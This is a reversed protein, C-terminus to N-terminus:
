KKEYRRGKTKIDSKFGIDDTIEEYDKIKIRDEDFYFTQGKNFETSVIYESDSIVIEVGSHIRMSAAIKADVHKSVLQNKLENIKIKNIEIKKSIEDAQTLMEDFKKKKDLNLTKTRSAISWIDIVRRLEDLSSHYEDNKKEIKRLADKLRPNSGVELRTITGSNSGFVIANIEELARTTGGVIAARKGKCLIKSLSTINSNLIGDSVVIMQNAEVYCNQIFSAWIGKGARVFSQFEGQIGDGYKNGNIGNGVVINGGATLQSRGVSGKVIIDSKAKVEYGDEINGNIVITGLFDIHSKLDGEITYINEVSVVQNKVILQGSTKTIIETGDDSLMVNEGFSIARYEGNRAPIMKGRVTIGPVGDTPQLIKAVVEGESVSHITIMKKFDISGEADVKIDRESIETQFLPQVSSNEGPRPPTGVAVTVPARYVPRMELDALLSENIGVYVGMQELANKLDSYSVTSGGLGPTSLTVFAKMEDESVTVVFDASMSSNYPYDAIKIWVGNSNEIVKHVKSEELSPISKMQNAKRLVSEVDVSKGRGIPPLVKLLVEGKRNLHFGFIGDKDQLEEVINVQSGVSGINNKLNQHSVFYKGSPYVMVQWNRRGFTGFIFGNRGKVQIEYDLKHLPLSLEISAQALIEELSHGALLISRTSKEKQLADKMIKRFEHLNKM